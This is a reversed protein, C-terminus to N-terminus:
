SVMWNLINLQKNLITLSLNARLEDCSNFIECIFSRHFVRFMRSVSEFVSKFSEQPVRKM